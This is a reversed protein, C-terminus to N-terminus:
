VFDCASVFSIGGFREGEKEARKGGARM